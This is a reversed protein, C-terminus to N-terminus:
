DQMLIRNLSDLGNLVQYKTWPLSRLGVKKLSLAMEELIPRHAEKHSELKADWTSLLALIKRRISRKYNVWLYKTSWEMYVERLQKSQFMDQFFSLRYVAQQKVLRPFMFYELPLNKSLAVEQFYMQLFKAEDFFLLGSEKCFQKKLHKFFKNMIFKLIEETRKSASNAFFDQVKQEGAKCRDISFALHSAKKKLKCNVLNEFAKLKIACFLKGEFDPEDGEFAAVIIRFVDDLHILEIDDRDTIIEDEKFYFTEAEKLPCISDFIRYEAGCKLTADHPAKKTNSVSILDSEGVSDFRFPRDTFENISDLETDRLCIHFAKKALFDFPLPVFAEEGQDETTRGLSEASEILDEKKKDGAEALNLSLPKKLSLQM